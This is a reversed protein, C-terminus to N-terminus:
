AARVAAPLVIEGGSGVRARLSGSPARDANEGARPAVAGAATKRARAQKDSVLVNRVQQYSRQLFRGIEGPKYGARDLARIQDSITTVGQIISQMENHQPSHM